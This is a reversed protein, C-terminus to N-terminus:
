SSFDSIVQRLYFLDSGLVTEERTLILFFLPSVCAPIIPSCLFQTNVIFRQTCVANGTGHKTGINSFVLCLDAYARSNRPQLEESQMLTYTFLLKWVSAHITRVIKHALFEDGYFDTDQGWQPNNCLLIQTTSLMRRMFVLVWQESIETECTSDAM